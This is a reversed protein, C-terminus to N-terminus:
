DKHPVLSNLAIVGSMKGRRFISFFWWKVAMFLNLSHIILHLMTKRKTM